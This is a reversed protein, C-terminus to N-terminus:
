CYIDVFYNEPIMLICTDRYKLCLRHKKLNAEQTDTTWFIGSVDGQIVDHHSRAEATILGIVFNMLGSGILFLFRCSFAKIKNHYVHIYLITMSSLSRRSFSHGSYGSYWRTRYSLCTSLNRGEFPAYGSGSCTRPFINGYSWYMQRIAQFCVRSIFEVQM